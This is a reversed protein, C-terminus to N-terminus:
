RGPGWDPQAAGRPLRTLQRVGTGDANMTFVQGNRGFALRRGDLSWSPWSEPVTVHTLQRLDSGDANMTHVARPSDLDNILAIRKGDPSWEPEVNWERVARTLRRKDTGDARMTWIDSGDLPSKTNVYAIRGTRSWSTAEWAEKGSTLRRLGRGNTGITFVDQHGGTDSDVYLSVFVLRRSDPSWEPCSDSGVTHAVRRVGSGDPRMLYLDPPRAGHRTFAIWRGNPSWSPCREELSNRTLRRLGRGDPRVTWIEGNSTFAITGSSAARASGASEAAPVLVACVAVAILSSLFRM